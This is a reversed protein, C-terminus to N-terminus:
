TNDWLDLAGWAPGAVKGELDTVIGLQAFLVFM